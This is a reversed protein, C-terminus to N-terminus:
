PLPLGISPQVDKTRWSPGLLSQWSDADDNSGVLIVMTQHREKKSALDRVESLSSETPEGVSIPMIGYERYSDVFTPDSLWGSPDLLIYRDYNEKLLDSIIRDGLSMYREGRDKQEIVPKARIVGDGM